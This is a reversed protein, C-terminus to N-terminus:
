ATCRCMRAPPSASSAAPSTTRRVSPFAWRACWGTPPDTATSYGQGAATRMRAADPELDRVMGATAAIVLSLASFADFAGEKDEQMDKAYALPM